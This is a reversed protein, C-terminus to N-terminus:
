GLLAPVVSRVVVVVLVAGAVVLSGEVALVVVLRFIIGSGHHLVTQVLLTIQELDSVVPVVPV